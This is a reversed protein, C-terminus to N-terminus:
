QCTNILILGGYSILMNYKLSLFCLFTFLLIVLDRWDFKIHKNCHCQDKHRLKQIHKTYHIVRAILHDKKIINRCAYLIIPNCHFGFTSFSLFSINKFIIKTYFYIHYKVLVYSVWIEQSIYLSDYNWLLSSGLLIELYMYSSTHSVHSYKHNRKTVSHYTSQCKSNKNGMNM